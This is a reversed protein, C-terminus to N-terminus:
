LGSFVKSFMNRLRLMQEKRRFRILERSIPKEVRRLFAWVYGSYITLGGVIYPKAKMQYIARFVEWLPHGGLYYDQIGVKFKATFYKNRATGIKRHHTCTKETFTRTKWGKMRATTVAVWDIGGVRIPTYGGISEFCERRFLQCAGSVHEINTFRYDYSVIGGQLANRGVGM